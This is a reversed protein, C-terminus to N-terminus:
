KVTVVVREYTKLPLDTVNSVELIMHLTQGTKADEPVTFQVVSTNEGTLPLAWDIAMEKSHWSSVHEKDGLRFVDSELEIKSFDWYSSAEM